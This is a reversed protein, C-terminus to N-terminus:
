MVLRVQAYHVAMSAALFLKLVIFPFADKVFDSTLGLLSTKHALQEIRGGSTSDGKAM